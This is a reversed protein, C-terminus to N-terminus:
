ATRQRAPPPIRDEVPWALTTEFLKPVALKPHQLTQGLLPFPPQWSNGAGIGGRVLRCFVGSHSALLYSPLSFFFTFFSLVSTIQMESLVAPQWM